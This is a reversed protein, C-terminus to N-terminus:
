SLMIIALGIATVLITSPVGFLLHQWFSLNFKLHPPSLRAQESVILNAASGLLTLNGAITSVWALVLWAKKEYEASVKGASEAIKSGLLLVTPVNSILNSLFIIVISLVALGSVSDLRAYPEMAEWFAGPIGTKDFGEVAMFMGSFFVLISYMIKDLCPQADKFDLAVLTLAACIASWSMDLGALMAVVMGATVMYVCANWLRRKWEDDINEEEEGVESDEVALPSLGEEENDRNNSNNDLSRWFFCLLIAANVIVGVVAAPLLGKVFDLFSIGGRLAIVLNQPNGIPTASSGINAGSALALLFPLPSSSAGGGSRDSRVHHLLYRTLAVCSTDNTLLSACAASVVSVRAALDRPGLSRWTLLRSLHRFLGARDLYVVLTMTGFLLGLIPLDVSSYAEDPTLVGAAVMLAASLLSGATRGVPLLPLSPFVALVWFVSFAASGAVMAYTTAM